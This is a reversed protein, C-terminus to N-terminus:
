CPVRAVCHNLFNNMVETGTQSLISEPHFQLGFCPYHEHRIGMIMGHRNEAEIKLQTPLSHREVILSHYRGAEFPLPLNQYLQQRNHFILDTKGHVIQESQIINAGFAGAIAQHGLCVGLIPTTAAMAKVLEICIGANEPRGPGPSLIIAEPQLAIVEAITIKDNRVVSVDTIEQAVMQYLNYTFSDYNDILLIM